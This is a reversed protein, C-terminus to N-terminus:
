PQPEKTVLELYRRRIRDTMEHSERLRKAEAPEDVLWLQASQRPRKM